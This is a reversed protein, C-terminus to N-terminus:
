RNWPLCTAPPRQPPHPRGRPMRATYASTAPTPFSKPSTSLPHTGKEKPNLNQRGRAEKQLVSTLSSLLIKYNPDQSSRFKCVGLHDANLTEASGLNDDM